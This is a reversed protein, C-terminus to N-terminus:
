LKGIVAAVAAVIRRRSRRVDNRHFKVGVAAALDFAPAAFGTHDDFRFRLRGVAVESKATPVGILLQRVPRFERKRGRHVNRKVCFPVTRGNFNTKVDVGGVYTGNRFIFDFHAAFDSERCVDHPLAIVKHAPELILSAGYGNSRILNVILVGGQIRTVADSFIGNSKVKRPALVISEAVAFFVRWFILDHNFVFVACGDFIQRNCVPCVVDFTVVPVIENETIPFHVALLVAQVSHRGSVDGYGSGPVDLIRGREELIGFVRVAGEGYRTIGFVDFLVGGIDGNRGNDAAFFNRSYARACESAAGFQLGYADRAAYFIDVVFRKLTGRKGALM